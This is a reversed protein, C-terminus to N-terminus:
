SLPRAESTGMCWFLCTTLKLTYVLHRCCWGNNDKNCTLFQLTGLCDVVINALFWHLGMFQVKNAMNYSSLSSLINENYHMSIFCLKCASRLETTGVFCTILLLQAWISAKYAPILPEKEKTGRNWVPGALLHLPMTGSSTGAMKMAMAM